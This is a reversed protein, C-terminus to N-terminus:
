PAEDSKGKEDGKGKVVPSPSPPQVAFPSPPPKKTLPHSQAFLRTATAEAWTSLEALEVVAAHRGLVKRSGRDILRLDASFRGDALPRLRLHLLRPTGLGPAALLCRLDEACGPGSTKLYGTLNVSPVGLRTALTERATEAVRELAPPATSVVALSPEAGSSLLLWTLATLMM